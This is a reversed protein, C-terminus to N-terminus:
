RGKRLLPAYGHFVNQLGQRATIGLHLAIEVIVDEKDLFVPRFSHHRVIFDYLEEPGSPCLEGEALHRPLADSGIGKQPAVGPIRLELGKGLTNDIRKNSRSLLVTRDAARRNVFLGTFM